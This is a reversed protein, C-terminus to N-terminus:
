SPVGEYNTPRDYSSRNSYQCNRLAPWGACGSPPNNAAGNATRNM